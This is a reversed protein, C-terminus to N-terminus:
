LSWFFEYLSSNVKLVEVFIPPGFYFTKPLMQEYSKILPLIPLKLNYKIPANLWNWFFITFNNMSIRVIM